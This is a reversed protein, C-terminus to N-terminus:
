LSYSVPMLSMWLTSGDGSHGSNKLLRLLFEEVLLSYSRIKGEGWEGTIVIRSPQSFLQNRDKWLM